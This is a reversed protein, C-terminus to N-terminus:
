DKMGVIGSSLAGGIYNLNNEKIDKKKVNAHINKKKLGVSTNKEKSASINKWCCRLQSGHSIVVVLSPVRVKNVDAKRHLVIGEPKKLSM